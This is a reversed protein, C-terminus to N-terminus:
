GAIKLIATNLSAKDQKISMSRGPLTIHALNEPTIALVKANKNSFGSTKEERWGARGPKRVTSLVEQGARPLCPESSSFGLLHLM